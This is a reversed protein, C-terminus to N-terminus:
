LIRRARPVGMTIQAFEWSAYSQYVWREGAAIASISLTVAGVTWLVYEFAKMIM